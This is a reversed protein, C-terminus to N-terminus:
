LLGRIRALAQEIELLAAAIGTGPEPPEPDVPDEGHVLQFVPELHIHNTAALMGLGHICDSGYATRAIWISTVGCTVAPDYFDGGGMGFAIVGNGDTKGHVGNPKWREPPPDWAPLGEAGPWHRIVEIGSQPSGNEDLLRVMISAPGERERLEVLRYAPDYTSADVQVADGFRAHIWSWTQETGNKDYIKM